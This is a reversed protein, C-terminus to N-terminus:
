NSETTPEPEPEVSTVVCYESAYSSIRVSNLKPTLNRQVFELVIQEVEQETFCVKM